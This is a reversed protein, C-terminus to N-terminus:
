NKFLGKTFDVVRDEFLNEIISYGDNMRTENEIFNFKDGLNLKEEEELNRTVIGFNKSKNPTIHFSVYGGFSNDNKIKTWFLPFHTNSIRHKTVRDIYNHNILFELLYIKKNYINRKNKSNVNNIKVYKNLDKISLTIEKIFDDFKKINYKIIFDKIKDCHEEYNYETDSNNSLKFKLNYLGKKQRKRSMRYAKNFSLIRTDNRQIERLEKCFRVNPRPTRKGYLDINISDDCLYINQITMEYKIIVNEIEVFQDLEKYSPQIKSSIM